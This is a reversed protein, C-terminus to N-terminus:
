RRAVECTGPDTYFVRVDADDVIPGTLTLLRDEVVFDETGVGDVAVRVSGPLPAVALTHSRRERRLESTHLGLSAWHSTWDAACLDTLLGGTDGVAEALRSPVEGCSGGPAIVSVSLGGPLETLIAGLHQNVSRPSADDRSSVIIAHLPEHAEYWGSFCGTRSTSAVEELMELPRGAWTSGSTDFLSARLAALATGDGDLPTVYRPSSAPCADATSPATLRYDIEQSRLGNLLRELSADLREAEGQPDGAGDDYLVLVNAGSGDSVRFEERAVANAVGDGRLITTVPEALDTELILTCAHPAVLAPEFLLPLEMRGGAPVVAGVVSDGEPFTPLIQFDDCDPETGLSLSRIVLADPGGNELRVTLDTSCFQLTDEAQVASLTPTPGSADGTLALDLEGENNGARYRVPISAEFTGGHPPDFTIGLEVVDGRGLRQFSGVDPAEVSFVDDGELSDLNWVTIEELSGAPCDAVLKITREASPAESAAIDFELHDPTVLLACPQEPDSTDWPNDTDVAPPCAAALLVLPLLLRPM